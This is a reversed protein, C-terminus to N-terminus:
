VEFFGFAVGLAGALRNVMGITKEGTGTMRDLASNAGDIQRYDAKLILEALTTM